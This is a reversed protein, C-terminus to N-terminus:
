VAGPDFTAATDGFGDSAMAVVHGWPDVILSHGYTALPRGIPGPYTGHQGCALFWTQTEIARARCLVEWHDKGTQLTFAAPLIIAEAGKNALAIFLEGFRLDYCIALGVTIGDLDVTVVDRGAANSASERYETGDPTTIDFMHIKSYRALEGGERDFVVTTNRNHQGDGVTELISGSHVFMGHERAMDRCLQYAPGDPFREGAALRDAVTGGCWNMNEPLVVLDPREAAVAREILSRAQDLNAAVDTTSNMQILCAKM